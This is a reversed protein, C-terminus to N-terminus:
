EDDMEMNTAEVTFKEIVSIVERNRMMNAGLMVIRENPFHIHKNLMKIAEAPPMLTCAVLFAIASSRSVGGNCHVLLAEKGKAFDLADKVHHGFPLKMGHTEHREDWIDSFELVLINQVAHLAKDIPAEGSEPDRISIVAWKKPADLVEQLAQNRDRIIIEM